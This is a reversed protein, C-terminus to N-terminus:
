TTIRAAIRAPKLADAATATGAVAATLIIAWTFFKPMCIRWTTRLRLLISRLRLTHASRSRASPVDEEPEKDEALECVIEEAPRHAAHLQPRVVERHQACHPCELRDSRGM